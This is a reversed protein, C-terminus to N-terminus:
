ARRAAAAISAAFGPTEEKGHRRLWFPTGVLASPLSWIKPRYEVEIRCTLESTNEDVAAVTLAWTTSFRLPVVYLFRARSDASVCVMRDPEMVEPVYRHRMIAGAVLEESEFVLGGDDEVVRFAKHAGSRPTLRVYEETTLGPLWRALDITAYAADIPATTEAITPVLAVAERGAARRTL